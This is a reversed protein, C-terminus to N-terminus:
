ISQTGFYAQWVPLVTAGIGQNSDADTVAMRNALAQVESRAQEITAGPALRGYMIFNRTNRDRLMWTGTHTLQGYMTLPMWMEYDLGSRTGHFGDPAVGIITFPTRNIRLSAGIASRDSHYQNKWYSHSIVVVAHANQADDREAHTAGPLPNLLMSRMWSFITTSAGIGIGITLVAVATFGPNRGLTRLGYRLDRLINNM